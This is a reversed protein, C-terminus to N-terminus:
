GPLLAAGHVHPGLPLPSFRRAASRTLLYVGLYLENTIIPLVLLPRLASEPVFVNVLVGVAGVFGWLALYRPVLASRYLMSYLLVAGVGFLVPVAFSVLSGRIAGIAPTEEASGLLALPLFAALACMSAELMRVGAYGVTSGPHRLMLPVWLAAVIGLVALANVVELSVGAILMAPATQPHDLAQQVLTGGSLSAAMAVLFLVGAVRPQSM